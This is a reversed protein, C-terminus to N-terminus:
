HVRASIKSLSKDIKEGAYLFSESDDYQQTQTDNVAVIGALAAPAKCYKQINNFAAWALDQWHSDGTTRYAYFVSELVEPRLVYDVSGYNFGNKEYFAPDDITVQNTGGSTTKFVFSEPGIGTVSSTYTNICGAALALGYQFVGDSGLLKGGLIWNGPAFCGLHSFQPIVQGNYDSLYTEDAQTQGAKTLLHSISSKITDVWTPIYTQTSGILQGYKLLYEFFSDALTAFRDSTIFVV